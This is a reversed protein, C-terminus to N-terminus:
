LDLRQLSSVGDGTKRTGETSVLEDFSAPIEPEPRIHSM